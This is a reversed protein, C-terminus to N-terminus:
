HSEKTVNTIDREIMVFFDIEHNKNLIPTISLLTNYNEGNKRKNKVEGLFGKKEDRITKWMNEYFEPSMLGGWLDKSDIKQGVAERRTFGTIREVAKNAYLIIGKTDTIIVSDFANEVAMKFKELDATRKTVQEEMTEKYGKLVTAMSNFENALEGIEDKRKGVDFQYDLNGRKIRQAGQRLKELPDIVVIRFFWMMTVIFLLLILLFLSLTKYFLVNVRNLINSQDLTIFLVWYNQDDNIKTYPIADEASHAHSGMHVKKVMDGYPHIRQFTIFLGTKEDFFQGSEKNLLKEWQIPFDEQVKNKADKSLFGWEKTKDPHKIYYGSSDIIYSHEGKISHVLPEQSENDDVDMSEDIEKFILNSFISATLVGKKNEDKGIVANSYNISFDTTKDTTHIPVTETGDEMVEYEKNIDSNILSLFLENPNLKATETFYYTDKINQLQNKQLIDIIGTDQEKKIKLVEQGTEDAYNIQSYFNNHKIFNYIDQSLPFLKIKKLEPDSTDTYEKLTQLNNIYAMEEEIKELQDTILDQKLKIDHNKETLYQNTLIKFLDNYFIVSLSLILVMSASLFGLFVKLNIKM